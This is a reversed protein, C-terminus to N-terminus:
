QKKIISIAKKLSVLEQKGEKMDKLQVKGEKMETEGVIIVYPIGYKNAFELNKSIGKGVLDMDANLGAERLERVIGFCSTKIPCVYVDGVSKKMEKKALKMYDSIVELGFSVGAAPYEQKSELYAGIMKDYRGGGAVSSTIESNNIFAEFVTGTYYALGRALSINLIVKKLKMEKAYSLVEGIEKLGQNEGLLEKLKEVKKENSKEGIFFYKMVNDIMESSFGKGLLEKKVEEMGIKKLKDLSLMVATRKEEPVEAKKMIADLLKRNSFEITVDMGLATFVDGMLALMEADASMSKIGVVDVDCQYFERYRGLKIPGDRYVREIQYRKYPMKLTPNMGIFRAFPVTLDYRLGLERQGQDSLRFIEKLIEEGGAFKATLVEIKEFTPTELPNFGYSEFVRKLKGVVEDRLIKEEPPFDRTGKANQLEM